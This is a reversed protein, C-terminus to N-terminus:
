EMPLEGARQQTRPCPCASLYHHSVDGDAATTVPVVLLWIFAPAKPSPTKKNTLSRLNSKVWPLRGVLDTLRTMSVKEAELKQKSPTGNDLPSKEHDIDCASTFADVAHPCTFTEQDRVPGTVM